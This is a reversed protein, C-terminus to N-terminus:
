RCRHLRAHDAEIELRVADSSSNNRLDYAEQLSKLSKEQHDGTQDTRALNFHCNSLMAQIFPNKKDLMAAAGLKLLAAAAVLGGGATILEILKKAQEPDDVTALLQELRVAAEGSPKAKGSEWRAITTQTTGLLTGLEKQSLGLTHRLGAIRAPTTKKKM